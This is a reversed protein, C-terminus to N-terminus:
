GRRTHNLKIECSNGINISEVIIDCERLIDITKKFSETWKDPVDSDLLIVVRVVGVQILGKACESCVPLGYVYATSGRLSVGHHTANYIGNMEAHVVLEYKLPRNNYREESDDVGVPFGNYGTSLIRRDKVYVAGIKSSPDRSWTSTEKAIGLFRRDWKDIM